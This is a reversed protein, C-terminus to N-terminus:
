KKRFSFSKIKELSIKGKKILIGLIAGIIALGGIVSIVVIFTMVGPDLGGASVSKIVTVKEFAVNGGIDRAYFTITVRGSSLTDWVSQIITGNKTFTHNHVGGDLTYWMEFVYMDIIEVNFTPATSGFREDEIPSNITIRPPGDEAIPLYDINGPFGDIYTYPNDVIGDEPSLDPGTHNDWYNGITSSNWTNGTGDDIAHKENKAFFNKYITNNKSNTDLYVGYYNNYLVNEVIKNSIREDEGGWLCIGYQLNHILLNEKIKNHDCSAWVRIGYSNNNITNELIINDDCNSDLYLGFDGNHNINNNSITNNKCYYELDIGREGNNNASNNSITNNSCYDYLEIGIHTNNSVTNRTIIIKNTYWHVSIGIDGNNNATNESITNNYCEEY